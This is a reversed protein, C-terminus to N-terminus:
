RKLASQLFDIGEKITSAKEDNQALLARHIRDLVNRSSLISAPESLEVFQQYATLAEDLDGLLLECEALDAWAWRDMRRSAEALDPDFMQRQLAAVVDRLAGTQSGANRMGAEIPTVIAHVTNYSSSIRYRSDREYTSGREFCKIAEDLQKNRRYNGGLMGLCDVLHWAIKRHDDDLPSTLGKDWGSQDVLEIALRLQDIAGEYDGSGRLIKSKDKLIGIDAILDAYNM